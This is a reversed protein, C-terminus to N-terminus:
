AARRRREGRLTVQELEQGQSLADVIALRERGTLAAGEEGTRGLERVYDPLGDLDVIDVPSDTVRVEVAPDTFVIVGSVADPLDNEALVAKVAAVEGENEVTPNGLQPASYNFFRGLPSGLRRWRRGKVAVRGSVERTTLVLVGSNHVLLHEPHRGGIAPYHILTYRDNFRELARDLAQDSRAKRRNGTFKTVIQLGLNFCIFGAIMAVYSLLVAIVSNRQFVLLFALALGVMGAATLRRGRRQQQKIYGVNRVVQM